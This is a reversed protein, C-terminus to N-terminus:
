LKIRVAMNGIFGELPAYIEKFSPNTVPPILINEFRTQRTDTINELNLVISFHKFMKEGMIGMIFYDRSQLGNSLYQRGNYFGELGARFSHEKEYVLTTVLLSLNDASSLSYISFIAGLLTFNYFCELSIFTNEIFKM